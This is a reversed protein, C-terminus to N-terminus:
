VAKSFYVLWVCCRGGVGAGEVGACRVGPGHLGLLAGRPRRGRCWVAQRRGQGGDPDLDM